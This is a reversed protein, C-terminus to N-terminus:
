QIANDIRLISKMASHRAHLRYPKDNHLVILCGGWYRLFYYSKFKHKTIAHAIYVREGQEPRWSDLCQIPLGM